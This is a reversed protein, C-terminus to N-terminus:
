TVADLVQAEAVHAVLVPSPAVGVVTQAVVATVQGEQVRRAVVRDAGRQSSVGVAGDPRHDAVQQHLWGAGVAVVVSRPVDRESHLVATPEASERVEVEEM